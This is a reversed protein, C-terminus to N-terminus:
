HVLIVPMTANDVVQQTNGGFVVEREHSDGYAGMVLVDAGISKAKRLLTKGLSASTKFRITHASVGRMELYSVLDATSAGHVEAGTTLITVQDASELLGMTLAVARAAETSGNWAVAIHSGIEGVEKRSKPCMMVPRGTNFLAAKLTNTGLNRDLDPKAVAIIDALRGHRKIIDVQRGQEESWSMSTTRGSAKSENEIMKINFSKALAIVEDRLGEEVTDALAKSQEFLQKKLFAPVPVGFPLLDEPRARCHTVSIHAKFRRALSAAHALVNDGKGDGRVPVLIKRIM